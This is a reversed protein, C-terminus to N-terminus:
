GWFMKKLNLIVHLLNGSDETKIRREDHKKKKKMRGRENKM